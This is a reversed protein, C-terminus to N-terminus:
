NGGAVGKPRPLSEVGVQGPLKNASAETEKPQPRFYVVGQKTKAM